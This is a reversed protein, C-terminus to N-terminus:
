KEIEEHKVHNKNRSNGWANSSGWTNQKEVEKTKQLEEKLKSIETEKTEIMKQLEVNKNIISILNNLTLAEKIVLGTTATIEKLQKVSLPIIKGTDKKKYVTAKIGKEDLFKQFDPHFKKMKSPSLIDHSNLKWDQSHKKNTDPVIAGAVIHIHPHSILEGSPSYHFEDYHAVADYVADSGYPLLTTVYELSAEFFSNYDSPNLDDPAHICFSIAHILGKRKYQYVEKELNKRYQNIKEATDGRQLLHINQHSLDLRISDNSHYKNPPLERNLHRFTYM